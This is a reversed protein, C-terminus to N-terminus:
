WPLGWIDTGMGNLLRPILGGFLGLVPFRVALSCLPRAEFAPLGVGPDASSGVALGAQCKEAAAM